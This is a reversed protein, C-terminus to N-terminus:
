RFYWAFERFKQHEVMLLMGVWSSVTIGVFVADSAEPLAARLLVTGSFLLLPTVVVHTWRMQLGERRCSLTLGALGLACGISLAWPVFVWGDDSSWALGIGIVVIAAGVLRCWTVQNILRRAFLGQQLIAFVPAVAAFVGFGQLYGAASEWQGGLITELLFEPFLLVLTMSLLAVRFALFLSWEMGHGIREARDRVRSFVSFAVRGFFPNLARSPLRALYFSRDFQGLTRTGALSGILLGPTDYMLRSSFVQFYMRLSFGWLRRATSKNFELTVPQPYLMIAAVVFCCVGVAERMLLSWANWGNMALLVATVAGVGNSVASVLASRRFRLEKDLFAVLVSIPMKLSRIACLALLLVIVDASYASRSHLYAALATGFSALVLGVCLSMLLGTAFADPEDQMSICAQPFSFGGIMFIVGVMSAALAFTGFDEPMLLRALVANCAFSGLYTMHSIAASWLGGRVAIRSISVRDAM